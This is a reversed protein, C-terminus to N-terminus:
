TALRRQSGLYSSPFFTIRDTRTDTTTKSSEILPENSDLLDVTPLYGQVEKRLHDNHQEILLTDRDLSSPVKVHVRGNRPREGFVECAVGTPVFAIASASSATDPTTVYMCTARFRKLCTAVLIGHELFHLLALFDIM